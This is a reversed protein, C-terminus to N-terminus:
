ATRQQCAATFVIQVDYLAPCCRWACHVSSHSMHFQGSTRREMCAPAQPLCNALSYSAKVSNCHTSSLLGLMQAPGSEPTAMWTSLLPGDPHWQMHPLQCLM